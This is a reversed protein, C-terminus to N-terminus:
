GGSVPPIIALRDGDHLLAGPETYEDNLALMTGAHWPLQPRDRRIAAVADALSSGAPLEIALERKGAREAMVAFLQVVIQM